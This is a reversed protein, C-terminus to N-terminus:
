VIEQFWNYDQKEPFSYISISYFGIFSYFWLILLFIFKSIKSFLSETIKDHNNESDNSSKQNEFDSKRVDSDKLTSWFIYVLIPMFLMTLTAEEAVGEAKAFLTIGAFCLFCGFTLFAFQRTKLLNTERFGDNRILAIFFYSTVLWLIGPLLFLLSYFVQIGSGPNSISDRASKFYTWTDDTLSM